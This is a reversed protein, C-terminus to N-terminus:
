DQKSHGNKKSEQRLLGELLDKVEKGISLGVGEEPLKLQDVGIGLKKAIKEKDRQWWLNKDIKYSLSEFRGTIRVPISLGKLEALGEGGPGQASGVVTIEMLYNMTQAVMDATGNGSIRFLPSKINLDTNSAVGNNFVLTGKMETFKFETEDATVSKIQGGRLNAFLRRADLVLKRIDLGKIMGNRISFETEGQLSRLVERSDNGHGSIKINLRGTGTLCESIGADSLMPLMQVHSLTENVSLLPSDNRTDLKLNGLLTGGYLKASVPSVEVEGDKAKVGIRVDQARLGSMKLSQINLNGKTDFSRLLAVPLAFLMGGPMGQAETGAGSHKQQDASLYRDLDIDDVNINFSYSPQDFGSVNLTGLATTDDLIAKIDQINIRSTSAEYVAHVSARSLVKNDRTDVDVSFAKLLGRLDFMPAIIRGSLYPARLLRHGQISLNVQGNAASVVARPISARQKKLNFKSTPLKGHVIVPWGTLRYELAKVELIMTRILYELEPASLEVGVGGLRTDFLADQLVLKNQEADFRVRGKLKVPLQYNENSQLLKFSLALKESKGSLIQGVDFSLKNFIYHNAAKHDRWIVQSDRVNVGGVVFAALAMGEGAKDRGLLDDWNTKGRDNTVLSLTMGGLMVKDVEVRGKLLPLIRVSIEAVKIQAMPVEGFGEANELTIDSAKVRLWPFLSLRLEGGITLKRGTHKNVLATFDDKYNNPDIIHPLAYSLAILGVALIGILGFIFKLLKKM